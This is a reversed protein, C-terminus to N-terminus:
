DRYIRKYFNLEKSIPVTEDLYTLNEAGDYEDVVWPRSTDVEIICLTGVNGACIREKPLPFIYKYGVYNNSDFPIRYYKNEDIEFRIDQISVTEWPIDEIKKILDQNCRWLEGSTKMVEHAYEQISAPFVDSGFGTFFIVKTM